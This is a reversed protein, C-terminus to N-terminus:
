PIGAPRDIPVPVAIYVPPASKEKVMRAGVTEKAVRPKPIRLDAAQASITGILLIFLVRM